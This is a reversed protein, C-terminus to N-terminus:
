HDIPFDSFCPFPFLAPRGPQSSFEARLCDWRKLFDGESKSNYMLDEWADYLGLNSYEWQRNPDLQGDEGLLLPKSPSATLLHALCRQAEAEVASNVGIPLNPPAPQQEFAVRNDTKERSKRLRRDVWPLRPGKWKEMINKQVNKNIHWICLQQKATPFVLTTANKFSKCFDSIIMGPDPIQCKLQMKKLANLTWKYQPESESSVFAFGINFVTNFCNIGHIQTVPMNFRNLKYTNDISILAPNQKWLQLAWDFAFFVADIIGDSGRHLDYFVDDRQELLELFQQTDTLDGWKNRRISLQINSVDQRTFIGLKLSELVGM